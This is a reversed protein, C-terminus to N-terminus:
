KAAKVNVNETGDVTSSCRRLVAEGAHHKVSTQTAGVIALFTEEDVLKRLAMVDVEVRKPADINAELTVRKGDVVAITTFQKVGADSMSKYLEKRTNAEERSAINKAKNAKFTSRALEQLEESIEKPNSTRIRRKIVPM